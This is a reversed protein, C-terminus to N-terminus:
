RRSVEKEKPLSVDFSGRVFTLGTRTIIGEAQRAMYGLYSRMYEMNRSGAEDEVEITMKVPYTCLEYDVRGCVLYKCEIEM